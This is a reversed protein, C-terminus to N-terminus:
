LERASRDFLNRAPVLRACMRLPVWRPRDEPQAPAPDALLAPVKLKPVDAGFVGGVRPPLMDNVYPDLDETTSARRRPLLSSRVAAPAGPRMSSSPPRNM